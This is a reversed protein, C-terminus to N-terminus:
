SDGTASGAQFPGRQGTDDPEDPQHMDSLADRVLEELALNRGAELLADVHEADLQRHLINLVAAESADDMWQTVAGATHVFGLGAGLLHASLRLRSQQALPWAMAIAAFAVVLLDRRLLASELAERLLREAEAPRCEVTEVYALNLLAIDHAGSGPTSIALSEECLARGESL